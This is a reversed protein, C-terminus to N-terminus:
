TVDECMSCFYHCMTRLKYSMIENSMGVTDQMGDLKSM